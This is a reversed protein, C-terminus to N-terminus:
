VAPHPRAQIEINITVTDDVPVAFSDMNFASRSIATSAHLFINEAGRSNAM